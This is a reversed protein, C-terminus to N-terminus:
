PAYFYVGRARVIKRFFDLLETPRCKWGLDGLALRALFPPFEGIKSAYDHALGGNALM